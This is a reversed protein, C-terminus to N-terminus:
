VGLIKLTSTAADTYSQHATKAAAELAALGEQMDAVGVTWETYAERYAEAAAGVWVGEVEKAKADLAVLVDAVAAMYGRMRATLQELQDLDVSFAPTDITM